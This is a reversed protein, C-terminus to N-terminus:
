SDRREASPQEDPAPEAATRTPPTRWGPAGQLGPAGTPSPQGPAPVEDLAIRRALKTFRVELDRFRLYSTVVFGLFAVILAYLLLDTGRGVGVFRAMRNWVEPYVVSLGAFGAFAVLLVRRIALYRATQARLLTVAVGAIAAILLVQILV